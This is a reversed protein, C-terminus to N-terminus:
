SGMFTSSHLERLVAVKEGKSTQDEQVVILDVTKM